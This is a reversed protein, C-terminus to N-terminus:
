KTENNFVREFILDITNCITLTIEEIRYLKIKKIEYIIATIRLATLCAILTTICIFGIETTGM